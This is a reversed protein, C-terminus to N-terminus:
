PSSVVLSGYILVLYPLSALFLSRAWRAGSRERLGFLSWVFLTLGLVVAIVLYGRGALNVQTPWLSAVILALCYIAIARKTRAVGEVLPFVMINARQYESQRFIAIALFHPLQWVFLITFLSVAGLDVRGTMSSWGIVPPVAGAIGGIHLAFPTIPKLPTYVFVYLVHAALALGATVPDAGLLLVVVGLAGLSIGFLLASRPRLRGSPLPRARTREMKADSDRELYMNLANASGVVFGTGLLVVLIKAWDVNGPAIVAGSLTTLLVLRTVGPKTLEFYAKIRSFGM